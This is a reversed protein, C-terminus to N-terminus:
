LVNINIIFDSSLGGNNGINNSSFVRGDTLTLELRIVFLDGPEIGELTNNTIVLFDETNVLLNFVPFNNEGPNFADNQITSLLVEQDVIANSSDGADESNDIFTVFVDMTDLLSGNQSDRYELTTNLAGELNDSFLTNSNTDTVQVVAGNDLSEILNNVNSDDDGCSTFAVALLTACLLKKIKM